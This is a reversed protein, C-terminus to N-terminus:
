LHLKLSSLHSRHWKNSSWRRWNVLWWSRNISRLSVLGRIFLEFTIIWIVAIFILRWNVLRLILRLSSRWHPIFWWFRYAGWFLYRWLLIKFFHVLLWLLRRMYLGLHATNKSPLFFFLLVSSYWLLWSLLWSWLRISSRTWNSCSLCSWLMMGLIWLYM